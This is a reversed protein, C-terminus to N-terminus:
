LVQASTVAPAPATTGTAAPAPATTGAAVPDTLQAATVAPPPLAAMLRAARDVGSTAPGGALLAALLDATVADPDARLGLRHRVVLAANVFQDAGHPLVLQPVGGGLATMMTGSGGHHVVAACAALAPALPLWGTVRVNGPLPGLGVPDTDDGRGGDGPADGEAVTLVFEADVDAAADITRRLGSLGALAPVVTGLTILVRPRDAPRRLWDPLTGGANYPVYRMPWGDGDGIMLEAPALHLVVREPLELPVGLRRYAAALWPLFRTALTQERLLNFGHEVAPVRLARAVLPGVPHLRSHVILDPRWWRAVALTGDAMLDAIRGFTELLLPDIRSGAAAIRLGRRRMRETWEAPTGTGFVGAVPAGPAVDVTPLGAHAAGALGEATTAVLVDHGAARLAWALPVLPFLHGAGPPSTILVRM